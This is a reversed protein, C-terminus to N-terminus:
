FLLSSVTRKSTTGSASYSHKGSGDRNENTTVEAVCETSSAIDIVTNSVDFQAARAILDGRATVFLSNGDFVLDDQGGVLNVYAVACGHKTALDQVLKLRTDTKSVEFPSGNLVLAVDTGAQELHAVTEGAQWIDECILTSFTLGQFDFTLPKNGPVFNRFEDFV